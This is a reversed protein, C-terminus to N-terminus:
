PAEGRDIGVDQYGALGAGALVGDGALQVRAAREGVRDGGPGPAELQRGVAGDILIRHGLQRDFRL